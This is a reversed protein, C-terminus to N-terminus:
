LIDIKKKICNYVWKEGCQVRDEAVELEDEVFALKRAIEDSKADADEAMLRADKLKATLQDMREEDQKSRNKLVQCIRRCWSLPALTIAYFRMASEPWQNRLLTWFDIELPSEFVKIIIINYKAHNYAFSFMCVFLKKWRKADEATELAKALKTQAALRREESKELNQM